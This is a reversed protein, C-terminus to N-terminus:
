SIRNRNEEWWRLFEEIELNKVNTQGSIAKFCRCAYEVALLSKDSKMVSIYFALKEKKPIDKRNSIYQIIGPKRYTELPPPQSYARKLEELSLKSPDVGQDWDVTIFLEPMNHSNLIALWAERARDKLSFDNDTSLRKLRDFSDRDNSQAALVVQAFDVESVMSKIQAEVTKIKPALKKEILPDAVKDIREQAKERVLSQINEKNFEEDIRRNVSKKVDQVEGQLSSVLNASLTSYDQKAKDKMLGVEEKIDARIDHFSKSTLFTASGIGVALILGIIGSFWYYVKRVSEVERHARDVIDQYLRLMSREQNSLPDPTKNEDDM